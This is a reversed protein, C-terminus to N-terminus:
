WVEGMGGAGRDPRHGYLHRPRHRSLPAHIVARPVLRKLEEFWHQVIRIEDVQSADGIPQLM